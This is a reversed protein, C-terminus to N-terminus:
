DAHFEKAPLSKVSMALAFSVQPDMVARAVFGELRRKRSADSWMSRHLSSALM